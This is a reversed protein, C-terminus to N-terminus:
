WKSVDDRAGGEPVLAMILRLRTDFPRPASPALIIAATRGVHVYTGRGFPRIDGGTIGWERYRQSICGGWARLVDLIAEGFAKSAAKWM